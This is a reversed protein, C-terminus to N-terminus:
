TLHMFFENSPFVCQISHTNTCLPFVFQDYFCSKCDGRHLSALSESQSRCNQLRWELSLSELPKPAQSLFVAIFCFRPLFRGLSPSVFAFGSHKHGCQAKLITNPSLFRSLFSLQASVGSLFPTWTWFNNENDVTSSSCGLRERSSSQHNFETKNTNESLFAAVYSEGDDNVHPAGRPLADFGSELDQLNTGVRLICCTQVTFGVRLIRCTQVTFGVRLIRCTQGKQCLNGRRGGQARAGPPGTQM